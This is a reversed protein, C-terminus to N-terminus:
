ENGPEKRTAPGPKELAFMVSRILGDVLRQAQEFEIRGEEFTEGWSAMEALRERRQSVAEGLALIDEDDGM